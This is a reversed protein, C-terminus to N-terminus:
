GLVWCAVATWFLVAVVILAAWTALKRRGSFESAIPAESRERQMSSMPARPPASTHIRPTM